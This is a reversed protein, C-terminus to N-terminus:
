YTRPVRFDMEDAVGFEGLRINWPVPQARVSKWIAGGISALFLLAGTTIMSVVSTLVDGIFDRGSFMAFM